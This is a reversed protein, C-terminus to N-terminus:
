TKSRVLSSCGVDRKAADAGIEVPLHPPQAIPQGRDLKAGVVDGYGGHVLQQLRIISAVGEVAFVLAALGDAM